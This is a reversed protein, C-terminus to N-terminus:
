NSSQVITFSLIPNTKFTTPAEVSIDIKILNKPGLSEIDAVGVWARIATNPTGSSTVIAKTPRVRWDFSGDYHM